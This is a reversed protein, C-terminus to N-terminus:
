QEVRGPKRHRTPLPWVTGLLRPHGSTALLKSIGAIARQRLNSARKQPAGQPGTSLLELAESPYRQSSLIGRQLNALLTAISKSELLAAAIEVEALAVHHKALAALLAQKDPFYEYLSGISVGAEM